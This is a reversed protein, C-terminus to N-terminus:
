NQRQVHVNLPVALNSAPTTRDAMIVDKIQPFNEMLRVCVREFASQYREVTHERDDEWAPTAWCASVLLTTTDDPIPCTNPTPPNCLSLIDSCIIAAAKTGPIAIANRRKGPILNPTEYGNLSVKNAYGTRLCNRIFLLSNYPRFDQCKPEFHFGPSGLLITSDPNRTSLLQVQIVRTSIEKANKEIDDPHYPATMLEPTIVVGQDPMSAVRLTEEFDEWNSESIVSVPLGDTTEFVHHGHSQAHNFALNPLPLVSM